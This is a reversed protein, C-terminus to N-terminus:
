GLYQIIAKALLETSNLVEEYNNNESGMEVLVMNEYVSQNYYAERIFTEKIVGSLNQNVLDKLQNSLGTIHEQNTSLNGVVFMMKAYSTGDIEVFTNERPVSDRHFDIVLDFGQFNVLAENLYFNSAQYSSNYDLGRENLYTAMENSEYVVQIGAEQLLNALYISAEVVGKEDAYEESQHTNYIYVKKSGDNVSINEDKGPKAEVYNSDLLTSGQEDSLIISQNVSLLNLRDKIAIEEILLSHDYVATSLYSSVEFIYEKVQVFFPSILLLYTVICLKLLIQIKKAM